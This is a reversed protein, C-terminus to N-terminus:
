KANPLPFGKQLFHQELSAFLINQADQKMYFDQVGILSLMQFLERRFLGLLMEQKIAAQLATDSCDRLESLLVAGAFYQESVEVLALESQKVTQEAIHISRYLSNVRVLRKHLEFSLTERM